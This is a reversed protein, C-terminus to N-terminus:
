KVDRVMTAMVVVKKNNGAKKNWIFYGVKKDSRVHEYVQTAGETYSLRIFRM